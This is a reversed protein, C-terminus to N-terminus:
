QSLIMGILDMSDKCYARQCFKYSDAHAYQHTAVSGCVHCRPVIPTNTFTLQMPYIENLVFEFSSSVQAKSYLDKMWQMVEENQHTTIMTNLFKIVDRIKSRRAEFPYRKRPMLFELYIQIIQEDTYSYKGTSQTREFERAAELIGAYGFTSLGYDIIMPRGPSEITINRYTREPFPGPIYMVNKYHLDNHTYDGAQMLAYFLEFCFSKCDALTEFRYQSVPVGNGYEMVLFYCEEQLPEFEMKKDYKRIKEKWQEPMAFGHCRIWGYVRSFTHDAQAIRRDVQCAIRIEIASDEDSVPLIKIVLAQKTAHSVLIALGFVGSGLIRTMTYEELVKMCSSDLNELKGLDDCHNLRPNDHSRM